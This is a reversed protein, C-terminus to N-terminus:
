FVQNILSKQLSQSSPIKYKVLHDNGKISKFISIVEKQIKLDLKPIEANEIMGPDIHPIASGVKTRKIDNARFRLFHFVFDRIFTDNKIELKFMTSALFGEKGFLIEGANSADWLVLIDENSIKVASQFEEDYVDSIRKFFILPFIYIKFDSADVPVKHIWAAKSLYLELQSLTLNM